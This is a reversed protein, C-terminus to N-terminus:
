SHKSWMPLATQFMTEYALWVAATFLSHMGGFSQPQNGPSKTSSPNSLWTTVVFYAEWHFYRCPLSKLSIDGCHYGSSPKFHVKLQAAVAKLSEASFPPQTHLQRVLNQGKRVFPINSITSCSSLVGWKPCFSIRLVTFLLKSDGSRPHCLLLQFVRLWGHPEWLVNGELVRIQGTRLFEHM